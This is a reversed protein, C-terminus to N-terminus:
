TREGPVRSFGVRLEMLVQHWKEIVEDFKETLGGYKCIKNWLNGDFTLHWKPQRTSLGIGLWLARGKELASKLGQKLKDTPLLGLDIGRVASWIADLIVLLRAYKGITERM